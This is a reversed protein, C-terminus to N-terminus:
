KPPTQWEAVVCSPLTKAGVRTLVKVRYVDTGAKPRASNFHDPEVKCNVCTKDGSPCGVWVGHLNVDHVTHFPGTSANQKQIKVTQSSLWCRDKAFQYLRPEPHILISAGKPGSDAPVHVDVILTEANTSCFRSSAERDMRIEAQAKLATVVGNGGSSGQPPTRPAEPRVQAVATGARDAAPVNTSVRGYSDFGADLGGSNASAVGVSLVFALIGIVLEPIVSKPRSVSIVVSLYRLVGMDM